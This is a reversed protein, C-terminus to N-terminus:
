ILGIENKWIMALKLILMKQKQVGLLKLKPQSNEYKQAESYSYLM